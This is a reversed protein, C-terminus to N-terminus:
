QHCASYRIVSLITCTFSFDQISYNDGLMGVVIDDFLYDAQPKLLEAGM